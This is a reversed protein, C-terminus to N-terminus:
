SVSNTNLLRIAQPFFSKRLRETKAMMSRFRRGSPLLSFLHNGPHTSDKIKVARSRCRKLYIHQLSPLASGSIREALRVVRQLAKCDQNTANNYWVSICQTLVSEIAGSYFTKLIAPSVRFKRLQRLHYLRQRAKKVQTQIHTTWTLDESINVGLYKFSSVREVPTGSIMLPTYPQQQRKRFDVILEKTKSVNLSLCNDQCWSTLREVEDLYAAEDDNNILGLVVTDDAFKVISTSSHSSVCDHTYLSYLLPSLVCGQPAGINLTISNSTFQGVKVVQPRATLFDQIWDCLSTNLGLESLKVTLKTPVITNFASSYDIFLLRVYNGNKSDIHTLSSHLVQSIADDTSRNPRYAFQLPDLTAPISSCIHKNLLREFVKMVTSTLAVPRYDNLCSPKSNKPVPIIVSKKFSTPVVSTALSENFISTFLGALQDACSRLVRGTIGDPGAAKRINVRRLERRVDDESFTIVHDDSSQRCSGSPSNPLNAGGNCDFRGFFTNLEEALLPDARVEAPSKNGSSCITKLGQWMRRSDNLQFHSEIKESYRRKAARIARRLAYCSAKYESMNGSLLGANYAATRHNVADRISRDVWPKQNTFTRITVTETAQETLTNVFSVAVDTFESVDSSSARFMDWDVDDLSAQLMAESHPSWRTVEREVPPERAIRQKYEPTLFIAVHDSKGFAPLSHAKYANNLPTYCHDLTNLVRTPCSIHQHFNPLVKKLNAKNFDGTIICAADPHKNVYGSIEDHLNSLAVSTDAQPPIYVASVLISTFERPLYFPRCIISLHELHASCLLISPLPPSYARKRLRNRIGARRGRHKRRRRRNNLHDNNLETSRLIELPWAPDTSLTNQILNTYRQGIDLLTRRDYMIMASSVRILLSTFFNFIPLSVCMFACNQASSIWLRSFEAAGGFFFFFFWIVDYKNNKQTNQYFNILAGWVRTLISACTHVLDVVEDAYTWDSEYPCCTLCTFVWNKLYWVKIEILCQMYTWSSFSQELILFLSTNRCHEIQPEEWFTIWYSSFYHTFVYSNQVWYARRKM